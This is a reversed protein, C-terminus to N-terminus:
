RQVQTKRDVPRAAVGNTPSHDALVETECCRRCLAFTHERFRTSEVEIDNRCSPGVMLSPEGCSESYSGGIWAQINSVVQRGHQCGRWIPTAWATM